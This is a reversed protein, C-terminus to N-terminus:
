LWTSPGFTEGPPLVSMVATSEMDATQFVAVNGFWETPKAETFYLGFFVVITSIILGCDLAASTIYNYQLWWHNWRRRIFGNFIAGVLGWCRSKRVCPSNQTGTVRALLNPFPLSM